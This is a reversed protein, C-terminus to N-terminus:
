RAPETSEGVLAAGRQSAEQFYERLQKQLAPYRPPFHYHLNMERLAKDLPWGQIEVRYLATVIGSRDGGGHCHVLIPLKEEDTLLPRITEWQGEGLGKTATFPVHYIKVGYRESLEREYPPVRGRLSLISRLGYEQIWEELQGERPQGSRYIKGPVVTDFNKQIGYDWTIAAALTCIVLVVAGLLWRTRRTMREARSM